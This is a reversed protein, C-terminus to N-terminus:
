EGVILDFVANDAVLGMAAFDFAVRRGPLIADVQALRALTAGSITRMAGDADNSSVRLALDSFRAYRSGTNAIEMQRSGNSSISRVRLNAKGEGGVHVPMHFRALLRLGQQPQGDAMVVPLEEAILYFSRSGSAPPNEMWRLSVDASAGPELFIQPPQIDFRGSAPVVREEDGAGQREILTFELALPSHVSASVHIKVPGSENGDMIVVTPAVSFAAAPGAAHALLVAGLGLWLRKM